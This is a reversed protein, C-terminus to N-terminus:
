RNTNFYLFIIPTDNYRQCRSCLYRVLADTGFDSAFFAIGAEFGDPCVEAGEIVNGWIADIHVGCYFITLFFLTITWLTVVVIAVKTVIDFLSNRNVVFLRRYFFLVSLKIAGYALAM